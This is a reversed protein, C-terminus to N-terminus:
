SVVVHVVWAGSVLDARGPEWARFEAVIPQPDSLGGLVALDSSTVGPGGLPQVTVVDGVHLHLTEGSSGADLGVLPVTTTSSSSVGISPTKRPGQFGTDLGVPDHGIIPPLDGTVVAARVTMTVTIPSGCVAGVPRNVLVQLTPGDRDVWVQDGYGDCPLVSATITGSYGDPDRSELMWPVSVQETPEDISAPVRAAFGCPNATSEAYILANRGTLADVLFVQYNYDTPLPAPLTTRTSEEPCAAVLDARFVVVWALRRQYPGIPPLKAVGANPATSTGPPGLAPPFLRSAVTVRGYGLAVGSRAFSSLSYNEANLSALANCEAYNASIKPHDRPEPPQVVLDGNDLSFARGVARGTLAGVAPGTM